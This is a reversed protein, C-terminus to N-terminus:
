LDILDERAECPKDNESPCDRHNFTLHHTGRLHLHQLIVGPLGPVGAGDEGDRAGFGPTGAGPRRM